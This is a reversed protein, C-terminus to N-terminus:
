DAVSTSLSMLTIDRLREEIALRKPDDDALGEPEPEKATLLADLHQKISRLEELEDETLERDKAIALLSKVSSTDIRANPNMPWLVVSIEVLKVEELFRWIGKLRDDESPRRIKVPEYGISLGDVYGGKIRRFVEDGDPGDIVEFEVELGEDTEEGKLMKGVVNRVSGYNHSDLLPMVRKSKRWNSLTRKFAGKEVVDGGFDLDKTSALGKFTRAEEDVSKVELRSLLQPAKVELAAPPSGSKFQLLSKM